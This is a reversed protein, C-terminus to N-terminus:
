SVSCCRRRLKEAHNESKRKGDGVDDNLSLKQRTELSLLNKFMERVNYNTKASTEIFGCGWFRALNQGEETSVNRENEDCKNGVLMVPCQQLDKKHQKIQFYLSQHVKTWSLKM